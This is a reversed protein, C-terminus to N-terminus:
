GPYVGPAIKRNSDNSAGIGKKEMLAAIYGDIFDVNRSEDRKRM